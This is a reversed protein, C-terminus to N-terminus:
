KAHTSTQASMKIPTPKPASTNIVAISTTVDLSYVFFLPTSLSPLGTRTCTRTHFAVTALRVRMARPEEAGSIRKFTMSTSVPPNLAPSSPGDVMTPEAAKLRMTMVATQLARVGHWAEFGVAAGRM